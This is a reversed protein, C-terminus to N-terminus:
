PENNQNAMEMSERKFQQCVHKFGCFMDCFTREGKRVQIIQGPKKEAEAEALSGCVKSARKADPKM